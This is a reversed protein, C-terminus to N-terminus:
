WVKNSGIYSVGIPTMVGMRAFSNLVIWYYMMVTPGLLSSAGWWTDCTWKPNKSKSYHNHPPTKQEPTSRGHRLKEVTKIPEAMFYLIFFLVHFIYLLNVACIKMNELSSAWTTSKHLSWASPSLSLCFFIESICALGGNMSGM